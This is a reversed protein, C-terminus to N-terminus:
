LNKMISLTVYTFGTKAQFSVGKNLSQIIKNYLLNGISFHKDECM